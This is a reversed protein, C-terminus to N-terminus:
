DLTDYVKELDMSAAYDYVKKKVLMKDTIMRVNFVEYVCGKGQDLDM